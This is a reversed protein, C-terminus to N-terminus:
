ENAKHKAKELLLEISTEAKIESYIQFSFLSKSLLILFKNISILLRSVLNDGIALPYPAPIGTLFQFKFSSQSILKQFSKFTFLWM